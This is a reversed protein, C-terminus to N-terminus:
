QLCLYIYTYIQKPVNSLCHLSRRNFVNEFVLLVGFLNFVPRCCLIRLLGSSERSVLSKRFTFFEYFPFFKLYYLVSFTRTTWFLTFAFIGLAYFIAAGLNSSLWEQWWRWAETQHLFYFPTVYCVLTNHLTIFWQLAYHVMAYYLMACCLITYCLMAHWIAYYLMTYCCCLM